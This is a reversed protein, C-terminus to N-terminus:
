KDIQMLTQALDTITTEASVFDDSQRLIQVGRVALQQSFATTLSSVFSSLWQEM